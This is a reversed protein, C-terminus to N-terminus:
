IAWRQKSFARSSRVEFAGIMKNMDPTLDNVFCNAVMGAFALHFGREKYSQFAKDDFNAELEVYSESDRQMVATAKICLENKLGDLYFYIKQDAGLVVTTEAGDLYSSFSQSNVKSQSALNRLDEVTYKATKNFNM